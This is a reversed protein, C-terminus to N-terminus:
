SASEEVHTMRPRDPQELIVYTTMLTSAAPLICMMWGRCIFAWTHAEILIDDSSWDVQPQDVLWAMLVTLTSGAIQLAVIGGTWRAAQPRYPRNRLAAIFFAAPILLQVAAWPLWYMWWQNDSM